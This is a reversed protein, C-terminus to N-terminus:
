LRPTTIPTARNGRCQLGAAKVVVSKRTTPGLQLDVYSSAPYGAATLGVRFRHSFRPNVRNGRNDFLNTTSPGYPAVM